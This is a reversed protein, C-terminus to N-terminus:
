QEDRPKGTLTAAVVVWSLECAVVVTYTVTYRELAVEESPRAGEVATFSQPSRGKMKTCIDSTGQKYEKLMRNNIQVTPALVKRRCLKMREREVRFRM